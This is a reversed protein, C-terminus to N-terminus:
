FDRPVIRAAITSSDPYVQLTIEVLPPGLSQQTQVYFWLQTSSSKGLVYLHFFM